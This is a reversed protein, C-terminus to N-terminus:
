GQALHFTDLLVNEARKGRGTRRQYLHFVYGSGAGEFQRPRLKFATDKKERPLKVHGMRLIVDENDWPHPVSVVEALANGYPSSFHTLLEKIEGAENEAEVTLQFSLQSSPALNAQLKYAPVHLQM